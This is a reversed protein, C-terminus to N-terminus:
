KRIRTHRSINERSKAVTSFLYSGELKLFNENVKM